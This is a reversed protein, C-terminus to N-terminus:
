QEGGEVCEREGEKLTTHEIPDDFPITHCCFVVTMKGM